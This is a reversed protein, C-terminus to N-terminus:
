MMTGNTTYPENMLGCHGLSTVSLCLISTIIHLACTSKLVKCLNFEDIQNLHCLLVIPPTKTANICLWYHYSPYLSQHCQPINCYEWKLPRNSIYCWPRSRVSGPNRCRMHTMNSLQSPDVVAEKIDSINSWLLCRSGSSTVSVEGTYSEGASLYCYLGIVYLPGYTLVSICM